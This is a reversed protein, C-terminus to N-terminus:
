SRGLKAQLLKRAEELQVDADKDGDAVEKDPKVGSGTFDVGKPTLMKGTTILAASSDRLVLPTQILGDGFTRTGVLTAVGSEKLVAAVLEAVSATGNNILATVPLGIAKTKPVRITRRTTQERIVALNGGGTLQAAIGTATDLLGGPSNRLDIVLAKAGANRMKTLEVPFEKAARPNFQSIRIYGIRKDLMRSTVPDVVTDRYQVKLEIPEKHGPREIRLTTEGSTKATLEDLASSISLGNKLKEEAEQWGKKYSLKDIDQNQMAKNLKAFGPDYAIVWKGGVDSIVDGPRIGAKEAPSGPMPTVVILKHTEEDGQKERKLALIAGIGHFRGAAADDLLKSEKPDVFRTDPDGISDLMGQVAGRAMKTEEAATIKDVYHAQVLKLVSNLLERHRVDGQAKAISEIKVPMQEPTLKILASAQVTSEQPLSFVDQKARLSAGALFAAGALGVVVLWTGIISYRKKLEQYGKDAPV